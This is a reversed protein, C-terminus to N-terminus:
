HFSGVMKQRLFAYLRVYKKIDINHQNNIVSKLMSSIAYHTTPAYKSSIEHFYALFTTETFDTKGINNKKQWDLFKEYAQYYKDKSWGPLSTNLASEARALIHDPLKLQETDDQHESM